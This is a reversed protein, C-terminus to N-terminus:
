CHGSYLGGHENEVMLILIPRGERRARERAEALTPVWDLRFLPIEAASPRLDAYAERIRAFDATTAESGGSSNSEREQSRAPEAFWLGCGLAAALAAGEIARRKM